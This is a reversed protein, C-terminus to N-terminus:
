RSSSSPGAHDSLARHDIAHRDIVRQYFDIHAATIRDWSFESQLAVAGSRLRACLDRDRHLVQLAAALAPVNGPKVLMMNQQDRFTPIAVAPKTTIVACGQALAVMLSSRRYSAGDLFPLATVDAAALCAGVESDDVFGTWHVISGLKLETIQRDIEQAYAANTPDSSGTRDGIMLLRIPLGADALMRVARLLIEVGKSRNIFGFYAILLTNDDADARERWRRRQDDDSQTTSIGSGIPILAACRSLGELAAYDEHNTAMVGASARALRRVIWHRVPGAKPFLYPFRLDHFTTIVPAAKIRDPLFHIFPSMQFAATQFHLNLVDLRERRAWDNVQRYSDWRWRGDLTQLPIRPDDSHAQADSFIAVDHGVDTLHQALTRCHAAIGGRMPPYEGTILGIRM